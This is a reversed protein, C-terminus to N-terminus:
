DAIEYKACLVDICIDSGIICLLHQRPLESVNVKFNCNFYKLASKTEEENLEKEYIDVIFHPFEDLFFDIGVNEVTYKLIKDFVLKKNFTGNNYASIFSLCLKNDQMVNITDLNVNQMINNM